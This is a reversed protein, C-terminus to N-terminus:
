AAARGYKRVANEIDRSLTHLIDFQDAVTHRASLRTPDSEPEVPANGGSEAAAQRAAPEDGLLRRADDLHVNVERVVGDFNELAYRKQLTQEYYALSATHATFMQCSVVFQHMFSVNQRKSRPETLIRQFNDSLNALAVFAEKRAVKFDNVSATNGTYSRAVLAFYRQNARIMARMSERMTEHSWSPIFIFGAGLAIFSGIATDVVRDRVIERFDHNYLFHFAILVFVTVLISYIFFDRKQVSYGIIMTVIMVTMLVPGNAVFYLLLGGAAAGVLTGGLRQFYLRKTSGFIPKLIVSISLLIWYGHGWPLFRSVIYGVLMALALRISHRFVQSRMNLNDVFVQADIPTHTIFRTYDIEGKNGTGTLGDYHTYLSLRHMRERIDRINQFIHRLSTYGEPPVKDRISDLTRELSKLSNDPAIRYADSAQVALGISELTDAMRLILDGVEGLIGSGDFQEHLVNYDQQSSLIMEFLDVSDVFMMLLVRSKITSDNVIRRTKFLLERVQAQQEQLVVQEKMLANYADEFGGSTEYFRAKIRFYRSVSIISEGVAQQALRYPFIRYLVLSIFAYWVGGLAIYLSNLLVQTQSKKSDIMLILVLLALNGVSGARTGFVSLFSFLFSFFVIEAGLVIHWSNTLGVIFATICNLAISAYFGNRRHHPPGPTDTLSTCLAGISMAAGIALHGLNYFVLPPLVVSFTVRVALSTQHSTLFKKFEAAYDM